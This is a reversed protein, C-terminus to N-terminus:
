FRLRLAFQIVRGSEGTDVIARTSPPAVTACCTQGFLTSRFSASGASADYPNDFNPHNLANFFEARAQLNWGEALRFLKTVGL